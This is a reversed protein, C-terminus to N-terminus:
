TTARTVDPSVTLKGWEVTTVRGTTDKVQIDLRLDVPSDAQLAFAAPPGLTTFQGQVTGLTVGGLAQNDVELVAQADVDAWQYKVTVWVHCGTLNFPVKGPPPPSPPNTVPVTMMEGTIPDQFVQDVFYLSDGRFMTRDYNTATM